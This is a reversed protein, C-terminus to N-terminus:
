PGPGRSRSALHDSGSARSPADRRRTERLVVRLVGAHSAGRRALEERIQVQVQGHSVDLRRQKQLTETSTKVESQVKTRKWAMLVKSFERPMGGASLDIGMDSVVTRLEKPADALKTM